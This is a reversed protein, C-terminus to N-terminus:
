IENNQMLMLQARLRKKDVKRTTTMPLEETQCIIIRPIKYAALSQGCLKKLEIELGITITRVQVFAVVYEGVDPDPKGVVAAALVQAHNMLINEIEQPYVNVGKHIILDKERGTIVLRGKADIYACDGTDFWRNNIVARTVDPANYYGLMLNDGRVWLVGAIGPQEITGNEKRIEVEIGYLPAGITNTPALEDDVMIAIIPATETLGYGNMLQRRYILAFAARIKDPLADGGSAFLRVCDVPADKMLCLLGFLAPVGIFFTPKHMLVDLISSRDIRPALIVCAGIFFPTWICVQQAFIHFLPLVAAVGEKRGDRMDLRALLQIINTVIARSSLMVGKPAGTTGSTYLLACMVDSPLEIVIDNRKKKSPL